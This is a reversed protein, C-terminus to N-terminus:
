ENKFDDDHAASFELTLMEREFWSGAEGARSGRGAEGAGAVERKKQIERKVWDEILDETESDSGGGPKLLSSREANFLESQVFKREYDEVRSKQVRVLVKYLAWSVVLAVTLNFMVCTLILFVVYVSEKMM